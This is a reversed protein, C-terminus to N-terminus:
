HAMFVPVHAVKLMDRTAGGLISERFRSHGYAGMVVLDADQDSTHRCLVDAIRPMTKAMVSVETRIGHRALLQCLPGGPDSREPGHPPPDIVAISVTEARKLLPMAFRITRLAEAGGNWAIVVSKPDAPPAAGDPLVLVPCAADFLVGELISEKEYGVDDGYPKGLVAVDAYRARLGPAAGAVGIPSVMAETSWLVGTRGLLAGVDTELAEAETEAQHRLELSVAASVGAAYYGTETRDLGLCIADLHAGLSGCLAASGELIGRDQDLDTVVTVVSKFSM